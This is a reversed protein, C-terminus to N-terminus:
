PHELYFPIHPIKNMLLRTLRICCTLLLYIFLNAIKILPISSKVTYIAKMHLYTNETRINSIHMYVSIHNVNLIQVVILSTRTLFTPLEEQAVAQYTSM